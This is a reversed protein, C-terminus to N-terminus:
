SKMTTSDSLTAGYEETARAVDMDTCDCILSNERSNVEINNTTVTKAFEWLKQTTPFFLVIDKNTDQDRM